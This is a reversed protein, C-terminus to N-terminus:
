IHKSQNYYLESTLQNRKTLASNVTIFKHKSFNSSCVIINNYMIRKHARTTKIYLKTTSSTAGAGDDSTAGLVETASYVEFQCTPQNM